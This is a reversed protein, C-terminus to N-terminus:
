GAQAQSIGLRVTYSKFQNNVTTFGSGTVVRSPSPGFFVYGTTSPLGANPDAVTVTGFSWFLFQKVDVRVTATGGNKGPLTGGGTVSVGPKVTFGGSSLAANNSYGMGSVVINAVDASGPALTTTTTPATTTTTTTPAATTTTTSSTTTTTTTPAATTTTTSSTTTTTTTPGGGTIQTFALAGIQPACNFRLGYVYFDTSLNTGNFNINTIYKGKPYQVPDVLLEVHAQGPSYLALGTGTATLPGSATATISTGLVLPISQNPISSTVSGPTTQTANLSLTSNSLLVHDVGLYQSADAVLNDPLTLTAELTPNVTGGQAVTPPATITVDSTLTPNVIFGGPQIANIMSGLQSMFGATTYNKYAKVYASGNWVYGYSLQWWKVAVDNNTGTCVYDVSDAGAPTGATLYMGGAITAIVIAIAALRNRMSKM